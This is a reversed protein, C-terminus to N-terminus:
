VNSEIATAAKNAQAMKTKVNGGNPRNANKGNRNGGGQWLPAALEANWTEYTKTLQELVEPKKLRLTKRKALTLPLIM